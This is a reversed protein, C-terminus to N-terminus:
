RGGDRLVPKVDLIPTGDVAELDHVLVRTADITAIRVRHLGIPNPRDPSRTSFVGTLPTAPDDRPHVALVDRRAEHLWTLVIIDTDVALDAVADAMDDDFVLWADPAGERGQKPADARSRLPSQVYGAPRVPYSTPAAAAAAAVCFENGEPDAMVIHHGDVVAVVAGGAAALRESEAVVRAWRQQPDVGGAPVRIDIHLRNKATKPEPVSIISLRPGIGDPDCLWAGASEDGPPDVQALWEQRTAFPPPPPEDVYGLATKWFRALVQTDTADFTLDIRTAM